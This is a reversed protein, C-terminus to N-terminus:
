RAKLEPREDDDYGQHKLNFDFPFFVLLRFLAVSSVLFSIDRDITM